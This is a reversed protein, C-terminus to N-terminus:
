RAPLAAKFRALEAPTSPPPGQQLASIIARVRAHDAPQAAVFLSESSYDIALRVNPSGSMITAVVQAAEGVDAKETRYVKASLASAPV